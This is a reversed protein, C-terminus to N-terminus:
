AVRFAIPHNHDERFWKTRPLWFNNRTFNGSKVQDVAKVQNFSRSLNTTQIAYSM